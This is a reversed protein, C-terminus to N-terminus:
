AFAPLNSPILPATKNSYFLKAENLIRVGLATLKYTREKILQGNVVQRVYWAEVMKSEELRAMVQYFAPGSKSIGITKLGERLAKGAMTRTGLVELVAFQLHSLEPLGDNNDRM